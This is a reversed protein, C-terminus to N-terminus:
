STLDIFVKLKKGQKKDQNAEDQTTKSAILTNRSKKKGDEMKEKSPSGKLKSQSFISARNTTVM